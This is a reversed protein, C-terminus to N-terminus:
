VHQFVTYWMLRIMLLNLCTEAGFKPIEYFTSDLMFSHVHLSTNLLFQLPTHIFLRQEEEVCDVHIYM